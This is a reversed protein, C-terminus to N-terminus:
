SSNRNGYGDYKLISKENEKKKKFVNNYGVLNKKTVKIYFVTKQYKIIFNYSIKIGLTAIAYFHVKQTHFVDVM